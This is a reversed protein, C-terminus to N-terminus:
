RVFRRFELKVDGQLVIGFGSDGGITIKDRGRAVEFESIIHLLASMLTLLALRRGMCIRPGDSFPLLHGLKTLEHHLGNDFREPRFVEPEPFYEKDHHFQYIPIMITMGEEVELMQQPNLCINTPLTCIKTYQPILSSLRLSEYVCQELYPLDCLQEYSISKDSNLNQLIEDRLKQQVEPNGSLYYLAHMLASGTTDYGDLLVTLAHGVLDDHSVLKSERLQLLHSLYDKRNGSDGARLRLKISEHTLNSFFDDTEMPYFRMRLIIRIIPAVMSAMFISLMYFAYSTWKSAMEQMKNPEEPRSLTGVDIGWIFDAMVDATYRFCLDRTEVVNNHLSVQETLYEMLKKGSHEWISYAQKLRHTSVGAQGDSRLSRWTEGAAWFPNRRAYKDSRADKIYDSQLSDRYCRFNTVLVERALQPDLVLIQPQRTVFVGVARHKGKYKDYVQQIDEVLNRSRTLIGPYTGLLTLPQATLLGRKQWYRHHWTLYLYVGFFAVHLAGLLLAILTLM